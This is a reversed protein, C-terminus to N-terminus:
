LQWAWLINLRKSFFQWAFESFIGLFLVFAVMRRSRHVTLFSWKYHSLTKKM